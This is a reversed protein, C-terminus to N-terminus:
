LGPRCPGRGLSVLGPLEGRAFTTIGPEADPYMLAKPDQVHDLGVLHGLEHLMTARVVASEKQALSDTVFQEDLLVQGTVYALDGDPARVFLPSTVGLADDASAGTMESGTAWAILVPAWREGYVVPQYGVREDTPNEKTTGDDVFRLGTHKAIVAIQAQLLELAGPAQHLPRVVYHIPRCPSWTVPTAGDAQHDIFRFDANPGELPGGLPLGTPRPEEVLGVPYGYGTTTTESLGLAGGAGRNVFQLAAVAGVGAVLALGIGLRRRSVRRRQATAWSDREARWRDTTAADAGRWSTDAPGRGLAEDTVWRPVRGTPSRPLDASPVHDDLEGVANGRM